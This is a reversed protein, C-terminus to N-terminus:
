ILYPNFLGPLLTGRKKKTKICVKEGARGACKSTLICEVGIPFRDHSTLFAVKGRFFGNIYMITADSMAGDDTTGTVNCFIIRCLVDDSEKIAPVFVSEISSRAAFKTRRTDLNQVLLWNAALIAILPHKFRGQRVHSRRWQDNVQINMVCFLDFKPQKYADYVATITFGAKNDDEGGDMNSSYLRDGNISEVISVSIDSISFNLCPIGKRYRGLAESGYTELQLIDAHAIMCTHRSSTDVGQSASSPQSMVPFPQVPSARRTGINGDSGCEETVGMTIIAASQAPLGCPPSPSTLPPIPDHTPVTQHQRTLPGHEEQEHKTNSAASAHADDTAMSISPLTAVQYPLPDLCLLMMMSKTNRMLPSVKDRLILELADSVDSHVLGQATWFGIAIDSTEALAILTPVINVNNMVHTKRRVSLRRVCGLLLEKMYTVVKTGLGLRRQLPDSAMALVDLVVMNDAPREELSRTLEQGLFTLRFTAGCM